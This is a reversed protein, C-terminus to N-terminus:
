IWFCQIFLPLIIFSIVVKETLHVTRRGGLALRIGLGHGVRVHLWRHGVGVHLLWHGIRVHLWRGHGIGVHLLRWHGVGVHLLGHGVRIHLLGHLVRVHLIGVHLLGHGIRVHLVRIHLVGVLLLTDGNISKNSTTENKHVFCLFITVNSKSGGNPLNFSKDVVLRRLRVNRSKVLSWDADCCFLAYRIAADKATKRITDRQAKKEAIAQVSM